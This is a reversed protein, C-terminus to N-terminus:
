FNPLEWVQVTADRYASALRKSEPSWTMAYVEGLHSELYAVNRAEQCNTGGNGNWIKVLRDRSTSGIYNGNPSWSVAYVIDAHSGRFVCSADHPKWVFINSDSGGSAIYGRDVPSWAVGHVRAHHLKFTVANNWDKDNWVNWVQVTQDDGGSVIFNGDPSWSLDWVYGHHGTYMQKLQGNKADWIRVSYNGGSSAIYRGNPSWELGWINSGASCSFAFKRTMTNWVRVIHDDGGSAIYAGDPSWAVATVVNDHKYMSELSGSFANWVQLTKDQGASAIHLGNPSWAVAFVFDSHGNYTFLPKGQPPSSVPTSGSNCAVLGNGVGVIALGALTKLFIRRTVDQEQLVRSYSSFPTQVQQLLSFQSRMYPNRRKNMKISAPLGEM